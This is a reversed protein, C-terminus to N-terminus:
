KDYGFFFPIIGEQNSIDLEESVTNNDFLIEKKSDNIQWNYLKPQYTKFFRIKYANRVKFNLWFQKFIEDTFSENQICKVKIMNRLHTIYLIFYRKDNFNNFLITSKFLLRIKLYHETYNSPNTPIDSLLLRQPEYELMNNIRMIQRHESLYILRKVTEKSTQIGNVEDYTENTYFEDDIKIHKFLDFNM